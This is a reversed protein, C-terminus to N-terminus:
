AAGAIAVQLSEALAQFVLVADMSVGDEATGFLIVTESCRGDTPNRLCSVEIKNATMATDQGVFELRALTM